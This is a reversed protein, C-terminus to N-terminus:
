RIGCCRRGTTRPRIGGPRLGSRQQCCELRVNWNLLVEHGIENRDDSSRGIRHGGERSVHHPAHVFDEVRREIVEAPGDAADLDALHVKGEHVAARFNGHRGVHQIDDNKRSRRVVVRNPVLPIVLGPLLGLRRVEHPRPISVRSEGVRERLFAAVLNLLVAHLHPRELNTAPDDDRNNPRLRIAATGDIKVRRIDHVKRGHAQVTLPM